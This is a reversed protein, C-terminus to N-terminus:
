CLLVLVLLIDYKLNTSMKVNFKPASVKPLRARKPPSKKLPVVKPPVLEAASSTGIQEPHSDEHHESALWTLPAESHTPVAKEGANKGDDATRKDSKRPKKKAPSKRKSPPDGSRGASLATPPVPKMDDDDDDDILQDEEEEAEEFEEETQPEKRVPRPWTPFDATRPKASAKGRRSTSASKQVPPPTEEERLISIQPADMDIDEDMEHPELQQNVPPDYTVWPSARFMSMAQDDTNAHIENTSRTSGVQPLIPYPNRMQVLFQMQCCVLSPIQHTFEQRGSEV